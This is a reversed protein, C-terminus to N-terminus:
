RGGLDEESPPTLAIDEPTIDPRMGTKEWAALQERACDEFARGTKMAEQRAKAIVFDGHKGAEYCEPTDTGAARCMARWPMNHFINVDIVGRLGENAITNEVDIRVLEAVTKLTLREVTSGM